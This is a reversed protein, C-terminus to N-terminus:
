RNAFPPLLSLWMAAVQLIGFMVFASARGAPALGRGLRRSMAVGVMSLAAIIVTLAIETVTYRGSAITSIGLLYLWILAVIVVWFGFVPMAAYSGWAPRRLVLALAGVIPLIQILHRVFTTSVVGVLLLSIAVGALCGAVIIENRVM